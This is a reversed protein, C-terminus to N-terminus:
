VTTARVEGARNKDLEDIDGIKYEARLLNDLRDKFERGRSQPIRSLDPGQGGKGRASKEM